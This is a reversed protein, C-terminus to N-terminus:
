LGYIEGFKTELYNMYPQWALEGGVVRETLEPLTYKMGHRHIHEVLWALIPEFQGSEIQADVDPMDARMRAWLQASLLNGLLYGPFYGFYGKAWHIDQMVGLTDNPPVIGLYDEMRSNWEDPLDAVQVRGNILDNEMEFRLIVHLGYTVEDAEVRILSPESKNIARYFAEAEVQEFHPFAERLRPYFYTWFPRSRGIINEYLRSQSEHVATSAGNALTTRYLAPSTNQEYLAHGTEHITGMLARMLNRPDFRTTIRVDWRSFHITFPHASEDLRGRDFDYGLQAAVQSGFAKQTAIEYHGGLVSDDVADQNEGIARVLEILPPKLGAFVAEIQRHTIGPEFSDLLPDYLNDDPDYCAAWQKKLDVIQSLLPEFISFDDRERAQGWAQFGLASVRAIEQILSAPVKVQKEHERLAVRIISAEDSDYDMQDLNAALEHLLSGMEDSTFFEHALGELTSLQDARSASGGDPMYTEQDWELVNIAARIDSLRALQNKLQSLQEQL